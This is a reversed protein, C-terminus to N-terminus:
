RRQGHYISDKERQDNMTGRIADRQRFLVRKQPASTVLSRFTDAHCSDPPGYLAFLSISVFRMDLLCDRLSRQVSHTLRVTFSLFLSISVFRMDLLCDSPSRQVSHTLLSVLSPFFDYVSSFCGRAPRQVAHTLLFPSPLASRRFCLTCCFADGLCQHQANSRTFPNTLLFACFLASLSM